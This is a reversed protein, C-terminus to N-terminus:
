LFSQVAALFGEPKDLPVSHGSGAVTELRCDHMERVMRNAVDVSLIDSLEGRVLLTPALINQVAQWGEEESPRPRDVSTDRLARDYRYTYRGDALMMMNNEVRHRLHEDPPVTNAARSREYAEDVNEFVDSQQVSTQIRSTGSTSIKPGIDVIVLKKLEAPCSGAYHISVIGGMSLGLLNFSELGHAAVFTKLDEVMKLSGYESPQAWQTEGHGRQDLALVRYSDSMREAFWDWSRAHGTYGHLLVLDEADPKTSRWDRYHFRLGNMEILKDTTKPM